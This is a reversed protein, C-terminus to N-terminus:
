QSMEQKRVQRALGYSKTGRKSARTVRKVAADFSYGSFHRGECSINRMGSDKVKSVRRKSTSTGARSVVNVM